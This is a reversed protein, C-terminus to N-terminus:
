ENDKCYRNHDSDRYPDTVSGRKDYKVFRTAATGMATWVPLRSRM